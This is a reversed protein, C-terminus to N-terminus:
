ATIGVQYPYVMNVAAAAHIILDVQFLLFFQWKQLTDLMRM